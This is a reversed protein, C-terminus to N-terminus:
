RNPGSITTISSEKLVLGAGVRGIFPNVNFHYLAKAASLRRLPEKNFEMM